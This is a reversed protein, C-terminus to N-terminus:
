VGRAMTKGLVANSLQTKVINELCVHL